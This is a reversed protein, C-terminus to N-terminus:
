PAPRLPLPPRGVHCSSTEHCKRSALQGEKSATQKGELDLRQACLCHLGARVVATENYKLLM